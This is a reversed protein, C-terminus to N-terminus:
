VYGRLKLLKRIQNASLINKVWHQAADRRLAMPQNPFQIYTAHAKDLKDKWSVKVSGGGSNVVNVNYMTGDVEISRKM